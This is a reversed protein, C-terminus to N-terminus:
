LPSVLNREPFTVVVWAGIRVSDLLMKIRCKGHGGQLDRQFVEGWVPGKCMGRDDGSSAQGCSVPAELERSM